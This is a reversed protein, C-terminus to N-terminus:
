EWRAPKSNINVKVPRRLLNALIGKIFYRGTSNVNLYHAFNGVLVQAQHDRIRKGEDNVRGEKKIWNDFKDKWNDHSYDHLAYVQPFRKYNKIQVSPDLVEDYLGIPITMNSGRAVASTLLLDDIPYQAFAFKNAELNNRQLAVYEDEENYIEGHVGIMADCERKDTGMGTADFPIIMDNIISKDIGTLKGIKAMAYGTNSLAKVRSHRWQVVADGLVNKPNGHMFTNIRWNKTSVPTAAVIHVKDGSSEPLLIGLRQAIQGGMSHGYAITVRSDGDGPILTMARLTELVYWSAREMSGATNYFAETKATETGTGKGGLVNVIAGCVRDSLLTGLRKEKISKETILNSHIPDHRDPEAAGLAAQAWSPTLYVREDAGFGHWMALGALRETYADILANRIENTKFESAHAALVGAESVSVPVSITVLSRDVSGVKKIHDSFGSEPGLVKSLDVEMAIWVAGESKDDFFADAGIERLKRLYWPKVNGREDKLDNFGVKILDGVKGAIGEKVDMDNAVGVCIQPVFSAAVEKNESAIPVDSRRGVVKMRESLVKTYRDTKGTVLMWMYEYFIPQDEIGDIEKAAKLSAIDLITYGEARRISDKAAALRAEKESDKLGEPVFYKDITKVFSDFDQEKDKAMFGYMESVFKIKESEDGFLRLTTAETGAVKANVSLLMRWAEASKMMKELGLFWKERREEFAKEREGITGNKKRLLVPALFEEAGWKAMETAVRPLSETNDFMDVYKGFVEFAYKINEKSTRFESKTKLGTFTLNRKLRGMNDLSNELSDYLAIQASFFGQLAPDLLRGKGELFEKVDEVSTKGAHEPQRVHGEEGKHAMEM